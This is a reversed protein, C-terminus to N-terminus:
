LSGDQLIKEGSKFTFGHSYYGNHHNELVLFIEDAGNTLRFAAKGGDDWESRGGTTQFFAEDFTFGELAGGEHDIAEGDWLCKLFSWGFDECCRETTRFGVFRNETDVFNTAGGEEFIKVTGM